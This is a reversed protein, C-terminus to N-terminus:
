DNTLGLQNKNINKIMKQLKQIENELYKVKENSISFFPNKTHLMNSYSLAARLKLIDNRAYKKTSNIDHHGMYHQVEADSFGWKGIGNPCWNKLYYGYTHRASHPTYKIGTVKFSSNKFSELAAQYSNIFPKGQEGNKIKQFLIRHAVGPRYQPKEGDVGNMYQDLYVWFLHEFPQILFTETKDRGKHSFKDVYKPDIYKKYYEKRSEFPIINIRKNIFDIDDILISLAESIRCGTAFLLAWLLKDRVNTASQIMEVAKDFPFAKTDGGFDDAFIVDDQLNKDITLIKAKLAKTGGAICGALWSKEKINKRVLISTEKRSYDFLPQESATNSKLFDNKELDILQDRYNESAEMFKNIAAFHVQLSNAKLKGTNLSNAVKKVLESDSNVGNVLFTEYLGIASFMVDPTLEDYVKPIELIYDLFQATSHCYSKVTNFAYQKSLQIAWDDFFESLSEDKCILKYTEKDNVRCAVLLLNKNKSLKKKMGDGYYANFEVMSYSM